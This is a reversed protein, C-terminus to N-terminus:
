CGQNNGGGARNLSGPHSCPQASRYNAQNCVSTTYGGLSPGWALVLRARRLTDENMRRVVSGSIRYHHISPQTILHGIFSYTRKKVNKVNKEFDLFM